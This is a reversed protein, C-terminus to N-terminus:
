TLKVVVAVVSPSAVSPEAESDRSVVGLGSCQSIEVRRM